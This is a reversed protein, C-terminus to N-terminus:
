AGRKEAPRVSPIERLFLNWARKASDAVPELGVTLANGTERLTQAPPTANMPAPPGALLSRAEGVTDDAKKLTLQAVQTLSERLSPAEDTSRPAPTPPTERVVPSDEPRKPTEGTQSWSRVLLIALLIAAAMATVLAVGRRLRRAARQQSIVGAVIRGRLEPPPIIPRALALGTDLRSAAQWQARCLSCVALHADLATRDPIPERDFHSQLLADCEHCTM